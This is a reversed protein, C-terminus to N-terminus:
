RPIRNVEGPDTGRPRGARPLPLLNSGEEGPVRAADDDIEERPRCIGRYQRQRVNRMGLSPDPTAYRTDVMGAFDFDYPIPFVPGAMQGVVKLNHCCTEQDAAKKFADWDTNGILYEFVEM